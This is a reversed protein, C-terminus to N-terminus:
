QLRLDNLLKNKRPVKDTEDYIEGLVEEIIDELTAIGVFKKNKNYVIVMHTKKNLLKQFIHHVLDTDNAILPKRALKKATIDSWSVRPYQLIDKLFLFGTVDHTIESYMPIRSYSTTRVTQVVADLTLNEEIITVKEKPTMIKGMTTDNLTLINTIVDREYELLGGQNFGISAMSSVDEDTIRNHSGGGKLILRPLKGFKEFIWVVPFIVIEIIFLPKALTLAIFQAYRSAITKPIIEGFTLITFTMVGTAIGVGSSGYLETMAYTVIASSGINVLNNGILITTLLRDPNSKLKAVLEANLRGQKILSAIRSQSLSFFAIEAGSFFGSFIIAFLIALVIITLM